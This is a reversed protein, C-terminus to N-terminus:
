YETDTNGPRYVAKKVIISKSAKLSSSSSAGIITKRRSVGIPMTFSHVTSKQASAVSTYSRTTLNSPSSAQRRKKKRHSVKVFQCDNDTTEAADLASMATDSLTAGHRSM